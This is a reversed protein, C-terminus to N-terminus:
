DGTGVSGDTLRDWGHETTVWAGDGTQAIDGTSELDKLYEALEEASDVHCHEDAQIRETLVSTGVPSEDPSAVVCLVRRHADSDFVQGPDATQADSM